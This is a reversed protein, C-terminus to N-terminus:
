DPTIQGQGTGKMKLKAARWCSRGSRAFCFGGLYAQQTVRM